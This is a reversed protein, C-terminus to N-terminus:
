PRTPAAAPEAVFSGVNMQYVVGPKLVVFIANNNGVAAMSTDFCDHYTIEQIHEPAIESLISVPVYGFRARPPAGVRARAAAMGTPYLPLRMRKGNVWAEMAGTECGGRSTLMDPRLRKVVEWGNDLPFKSNEIDDADLYYSKRLLDQQATITVPALTAPRPPAVVVTVKATDYPGVGFFRSGRQYGIKRMTIQFDTSDKVEVSLLARGASDTRSTGIVDKLGRTLTIEASTIPVGTSDRATVAVFARPLSQAGAATTFAFVALAALRISTPTVPM